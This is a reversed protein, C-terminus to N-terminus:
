LGLLSWGVVLRTPVLVDISKKVNGVRLFMTEMTYPELWLYLTASSTDSGVKVFFYGLPHDLLAFDSLTKTYETHNCVNIFITGCHFDFYTSVMGLEEASSTQNSM